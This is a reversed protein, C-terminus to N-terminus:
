GASPIKLKQGVLIRNSRGIKNVRKLRSMKIGYRRSINYVTDGRKVIHIRNKISRRPKKIKRTLRATKLPTPIEEKLNGFYKKIAKTLTKALDWQFRSEGLLKEERSNSIFATEFLISPIQPSKLVAFPASRLKRDMRVQRISRAFQNVITDGFLISDNITSTQSMNILIANLTRDKSMSAGGLLDAANERLALLRTAKDSAGKPSLYYVSGGKRKRSRSSNTHISVFLDANYDRAIRVRRGLSIYYDGTRTMVPKIRAEKKLLDRCKRAIGLAINKEKYRYRRGIAGPDEGGHGPDLVVIKKGKQKIKQVEQVKKRWQKKSDKHFVDIVLRDSKHLYKKLTFVESKLPITMEVIVGLNGDTKQHFRVENVPSKQILYSSAGTQNEGDPIEVLLTKNQNVRSQKFGSPSSLDLVLRTKDPDVWHRFGKVKVKAWAPCSLYFVFLLSASFVRFKLYKRYKRFTM